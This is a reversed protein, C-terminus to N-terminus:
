RRWGASSISHGPIAFHRTEVRWRCDLYLCTFQSSNTAVVETTKPGAQRSFDSNCVKLVKKSASLAQKQRFKQIRNNVYDAVYVDGQADVAMDAPSNFEGDGARGGCHGTDSM